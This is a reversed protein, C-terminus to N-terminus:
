LDSSQESADTEEVQVGEKESRYHILNPMPMFIYQSFFFLIIFLLVELHVM